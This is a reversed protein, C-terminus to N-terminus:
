RGVFVEGLASMVRSVKLLAQEGPAPTYRTVFTMLRRCTAAPQTSPHQQVYWHYFLDNLTDLLPDFLQLLETHPDATPVGGEMVELYCSIKWNRVGAIGGNYVVPQPDFLQLLQPFLTDLYAPDIAEKLVLHRRKNLKCRIVQKVIKHRLNPQVLSPKEDARGKTKDNTEQLVTM